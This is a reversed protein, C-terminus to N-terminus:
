TLTVGKRRSWDKLAEIVQNAQDPGCWSLRGVKTCRTVFADLAADSGNRVVGAKHLEIWLGRVMRLQAEELRPRTRPAGVEHLADIVRGLEPMTMSAISDAGGTTRALFARWAGDDELGAVKRRCAHVARQLGWRKDAHTM